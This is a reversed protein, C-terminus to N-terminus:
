KGVVDNATTRIRAQVSEPVRVNWNRQDLLPQILHTHSTFMRNSWRENDVLRELCNIALPAVGSEDRGLWIFVMTANTYLLGMLPIQHAKEVESSQNICIADIWCRIMGTSDKTGRLIDDKSDRLRLLIDYCNRTTNLRKTNGDRDIVFLTHESTPKQEEWSYSVATYQPRSSSDLRVVQLTCFLFSQVNSVLRTCAYLGHVLLKTDLPSYTLMPVSFPDNSQKAQKTSSPMKFFCCFRAM